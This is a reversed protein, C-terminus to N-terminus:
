WLISIGAVVFALLPVAYASNLRIDSFLFQRELAFGQIQAESKEGPNRANHITQALARRREARRRDIQGSGYGYVQEAEETM